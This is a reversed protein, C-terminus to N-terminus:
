YILIFCYIFLKKIIIEYDFIFYLIEMVQVSTLVQTALTKLTDEGKPDVALGVLGTSTKYTAFTSKPITSLKGVKNGLSIGKIAFSQIRLM